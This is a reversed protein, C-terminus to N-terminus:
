YYHVNRFVTEDGTAITPDDILNLNFYLVVDTSQWKILPQMSAQLNIPPTSSFSASAGLTGTVYANNMGIHNIVQLKKNISVQGYFQNLILIQARLPDYATELLWNNTFALDTLSVERSRDIRIMGKCFLSNSVGYALNITLDGAFTNLNNANATGGYINTSHQISDGNNIFKDSEFFVRPVGIFDLLGNGGSAHNATFTNKYFTVQQMDGVLLTKTM